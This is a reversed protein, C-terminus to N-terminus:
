MNREGATPVNIRLYSIICMDKMEITTVYIRRSVIISIETM